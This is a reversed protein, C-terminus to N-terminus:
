DRTAFARGTCGRRLRPRNPFLKNASLHRSASDLINDEYITIREIIENAKRKIQAEAEACFNFASISETGVNLPFRSSNM